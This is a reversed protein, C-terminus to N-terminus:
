DGKTWVLNILANSRVECDDNVMTFKMVDNALSWLYKASNACSYGEPGVVPGFVMTDKKVEWTSTSLAQNNVYVNVTGTTDLELGIQTDGDTAKLYGGKFTPSQALVTVVLTATLFAPVRLVHLM